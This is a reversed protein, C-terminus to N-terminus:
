LIAPVRNEDFCTGEIKYFIKHESYAFPIVERNEHSRICFIDVTYLYLTTDFPHLLALILQFILNAECNFNLLRQTYVYLFKGDEDECKVVKEVRDLNGSDFKSLFLLGGVRLEIGAM